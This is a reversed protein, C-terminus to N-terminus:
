FHQIKLNNLEQILGKPVTGLVVIVIPLVTVKM